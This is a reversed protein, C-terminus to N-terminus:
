PGDFTYAVQQEIKERRGVVGSGSSGIFQDDFWANPKRYYFDVKRSM